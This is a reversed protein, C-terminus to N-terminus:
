GNANIREILAQLTWEGHNNPVQCTGASPHSGGFRLMSVGINTLSSRGLISKDMAFVINQRDVDWMIQISINSQSFLAYFTFRNDAYIGEENGLNLVALNRHIATCRTIQKRCKEEQEFYDTLAILGAECFLQAM